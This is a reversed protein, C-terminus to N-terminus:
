GEFIPKEEDDFWHGPHTLYGYADQLAKYHRSEMKALHGLLAQGDLDPVDKSAKAYLDYGKQEIGMAFQLAELDSPLTAVQDLARQGKPFLTLAGAIQPLAVQAALWSGSGQMSDYEARLISLHTTEDAVLSTFLERARSSASRTAAQGYFAMGEREIQM